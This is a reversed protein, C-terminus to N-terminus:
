RGAQTCGAGSGLDAWHSGEYAKRQGGERETAKGKRKGTTNYLASLKGQGRCNLANTSAKRVRGVVTRSDSNAAGEIYLAPLDAEGGRLQGTM